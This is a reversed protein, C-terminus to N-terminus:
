PLEDAVVVGAEVDAEEVGTETGTVVDAAGSVLAGALGEGTVIVVTIITLSRGGKGGLVVDAGEDARDVTAGAAGEDEFVAGAAGEDGAGASIAAGEDEVLASTGGGEVLAAGGEDEM